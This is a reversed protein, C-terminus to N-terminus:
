FFYPLRQAIFAPKSLFLLIFEFLLLYLYAYFPLFCPLFSPLLSLFFSALFFLLFCPLFSPLLSPVFSDLHSLSVTFLMIYFAAFSPVLTLLLFVIILPIIFWDDKRKRARDLKKEREWQRKRRRQKEGDREVEREWDKGKTEERQEEREKSKKKETQKRNGLEERWYYRLRPILLQSHAKEWPDMQAFFLVLYCKKQLFNSPKIEEM